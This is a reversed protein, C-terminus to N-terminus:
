ADPPVRSLADDVAATVAHELEAHLAVNAKRDTRAIVVTIGRDATAVAVAPALEALAGLERVTCGFARAVVAVDARQPTAFARDFSRGDLETAYPLFDFIGGGGNDVVVLTADPPQEAQGWVLGSVDHLFALDGMLGLVPGEARARAAAAGLVTSVVGDIGNAGRNAIVRPAGARAGAFWELDRVPMSSSVVITAGEPVAAHLARAVGPETCEAHDALVGDIARQAAADAAIWRELWAGAPATLVSNAARRSLEAPDAAVVTAATRDPDQYRGYPDVLVHHTGLRATAATWAAVAKSAHPAGLHVVVDPRLAGTAAPSRAIAAASAVVCPDPTRPWARPDALVPWRLARALEIAAVRRSPTGTGPAGPAARGGGEGTDGPDDGGAGTAGDGAVIVGRASRGVAALLSGVAADSAAGGRTVAHWPDDAGGRGPPLQDVTGTLPEAFALNAHVPGPGCPGGLAEAVLRSGISRWARRDVGGAVGPEAYFRVAPGYIRQQCVTQPAGVGHLVPPRDATCVILPVGALDAELVSPHLEAAATGSTTVVVVARGTAKACGIAFFGASREDLRVHVTVRAEALLALALPASRSGPCVVADRVGARAWEDALTAAFEAQTSM